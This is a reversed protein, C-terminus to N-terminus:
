KQAKSNSAKQVILQGLGFSGAMLTSLFLSKYLKPWFENEFSVWDGSAIQHYSGLWIQEYDWYIDGVCLENAECTGIQQEVMKSGPLVLFIIVTGVLTVLIYWVLKHIKM